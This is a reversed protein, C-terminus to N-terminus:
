FECIVNSLRNNDIVNKKIFTQSMFPYFQRDDNDFILTYLCKILKLLQQFVSDDIEDELGVTSTVFKLINTVTFSYMM